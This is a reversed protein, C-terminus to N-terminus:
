VRRPPMTQNRTSRSTRARDAPATTAPRAPPHKRPRFVVDSTAL